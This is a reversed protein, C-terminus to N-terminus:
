KKVKQNSKNKGDKKNKYEKLIKSVFEGYKESDFNELVTKRANESIKKYLIKDDFLLKMNRGFDRLDSVIMDERGIKFGRAGIRTTVSPLGAAMYDIMKINIGSGNVVPNIAIDSASLIEKLKNDDVKGYFVMNSPVLKPFIDASLNIKKLKGEALYKIEAIAIGVARTDFLFPRNIRDLNIICSVKNLNNVPIEFRDFKVGTKFNIKKAKRGNIYVSGVIKKISRAKIILKTILKDKIYFSFKKKSWRVDFGEKGWKELPFYGYGLIGSDSININEIDIYMINKNALEIFYDYINGVILFTYDKLKSLDNLVFKLAERNPLFNSGIFLVTRKGGLNLRKKYPEKNKVPSVFGADIPNPVVFIKDPSVNYLRIFSSKENKSCAFIIDSRRCADREIRYILGSFIRNIANYRFYKKYLLYECNHADYIKIKNKYGKIASFMWPHSSALFDSNEAIRSFRKKFGPNLFM